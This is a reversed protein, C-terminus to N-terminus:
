GNLKEEVCNLPRLTICPTDRVEGRTLLRGGLSADCIQSALIAMTKQALPIL